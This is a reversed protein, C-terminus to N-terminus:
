CWFIYLFDISNISKSKIPSPFIKNLQDIRIQKHFFLCSYICIASQTYTLQSFAIGTPVCLFFWWSHQSLEKKNSGKEGTDTDTMATLIICSLFLFCNSSSTPLFSVLQVAASPIQLPCSDRDTEQGSSKFSEPKTTRAYPTFDSSLSIKM